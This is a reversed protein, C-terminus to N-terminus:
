AIEFASLLKLAVSFIACSRIDFMMADWGTVASHILIRLIGKDLLRKGINRLFLEGARCRNRNSNSVKYVMLELVRARAQLM